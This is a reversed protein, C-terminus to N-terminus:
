WQPWWFAETLRAKMRTLGIHLGHAERIVQGRNREAPIFKTRRKFLLGERIALDERVRFYDPYKTKNAETWDNEKMTKVLEKM